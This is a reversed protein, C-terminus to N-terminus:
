GARLQSILEPWSVRSVDVSRKHVMRLLKWREKPTGNIAEWEKRAITRECSYVYLKYIGFGQAALVVLIVPLFEASTYDQVMALGYSAAFCAWVFVFGALRLKEFRPAASYHAKIRSYCNLLRRMVKIIDCM